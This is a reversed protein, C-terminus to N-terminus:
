IPPNLSIHIIGWYFSFYFVGQAELFPFPGPSSRPFLNSKFYIIFSAFVFILFGSFLCTICETWFGLTFYTFSFSTYLHTYFYSCFNIISFLCYDIFGFDQESVFSSFYFFRWFTQDDSLSSLLFIFLKLFLFLFIVFLLM